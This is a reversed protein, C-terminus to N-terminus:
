AGKSKVSGSIYYETTKGNLVGSKYNEIKIIVGKPSFFELKGETGKLSFNGRSFLKGTEYFPIDEFGGTSCFIEM